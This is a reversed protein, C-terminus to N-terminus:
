AITAKNTLKTLLKPSTDRDLPDACEHLRADAFICQEIRTM